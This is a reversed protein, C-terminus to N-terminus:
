WIIAPILPCVPNCCSDVMWIEIAPTEACIANVLQYDIM